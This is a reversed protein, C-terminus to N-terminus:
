SRKYKQPTLKLKEKKMESKISKSGSGKIGSDPQLNILKSLRKLSNAKLKM